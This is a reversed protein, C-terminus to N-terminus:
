KRRDAGRALARALAAAVGESRQIAERLEGLAVATDAATGPIPALLEVARAALEVRRAPEGSTGAVQAADLLCWGAGQPDSLEAFRQAALELCRLAEDHEGLMAAIGGQTKLIRAQDTRATAQTALSALIRRAARPRELSVLSTAMGQLLRAGEAERGEQQFTRYSSVYHQFSRRFDGRTWAISGLEWLTKAVGVRDTYRAFVQRASALEAEAEDSRNLRRLTGARSLCIRAYEHSLVRSGLSREGDRFGELAGLLDGMTSRAVGTALGLLAQTEGPTPSADRTSRLEEVIELVAEPQEDAFWVAREAVELLLEPRASGARAAIEARWTAPPQRFIRDADAKAESIFQRVLRAEEIWAPPPLEDRPEPEMAIAAAGGIALDVESGCRTCRALHEELSEWAADDQPLQGGIFRLITESDPCATATM